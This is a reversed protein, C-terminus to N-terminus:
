ASSPPMDAGVNPYFFIRMNPFAQRILRLAEHEGDLSTSVFLDFDVRINNLYKIIEPVREPHFVHLLAAIRYSSADRIREPEVTLPRSKSRVQNQLTIVAGRDVHEKNTIREKTGDYYDVGVYPLATVRTRAAVRLIGTWSVDCINTSGFIESHGVWRM